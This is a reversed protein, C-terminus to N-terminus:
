KSNQSRKEKQSAVFKDIEERAEGHLMMHEQLEPEYFLLNEFRPTAANVIKKTLRIASFPNRNLKGILEETAFTLEQSPVVKNVLGIQLAEASDIVECLMILEKAKAPGILNVLRPTGGGSFFLGREVEPLCATASDAMIRFDCVMALVFGAGYMPGNIAAITIQDLADFKRLFEHRNIQDERIYSSSLAHDEIGNLLENMDAGASFTKGNGTFVIFKYDSDKRIESIIEDLEENMQTNMANAKEPRNFTITIVPKKREVLLTNYAIM